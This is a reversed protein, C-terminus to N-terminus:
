APVFSRACMSLRALRPTLVSASARARGALLPRETVVLRTGTATETLEFTVSTIPGTDDGESWWRWTLRRGPVVEDVRARRVDGDDLEFRGSGGPVPDLNAPGGFWESLVGDETLASWVADAPADLEVARRVEAPGDEGDGPRGDVLDHTGDM